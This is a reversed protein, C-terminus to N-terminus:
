FGGLSAISCHRKEIVGRPAGPELGAFVTAIGGMVSLPFVFRLLREM